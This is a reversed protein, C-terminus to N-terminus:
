AIAQGPFHVGYQGPGQTDEALVHFLQRGVGVGARQFMRRAQGGFDQFERCGDGPQRRFVHNTATAPQEQIEAAPNLTGLSDDGFEGLHQVLGVGDVLRALYLRPQAQREFQPIRDNGVPRAIQRDQLRGRRQVQYKGVFAVGTTEREM